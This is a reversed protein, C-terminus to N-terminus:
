VYHVSQRRFFIYFFECNSFFHYIILRYWYKIIAIHISIKGKNHIEAFDRSRKLIRNAIRPTGRSRSAIEKASDTTIDINLLKASRIIIKELDQTDYYDLLNSDPKAKKEAFTFEFVFRCVEYAGDM